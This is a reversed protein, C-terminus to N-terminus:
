FVLDRPSEDHRDFRRVEQHDAVRQQPAHDVARVREALVQEDHQGLAYARVVLVDRVAEAHQALGLAVRVGVRQRTEAVTVPHARHEIIISTSSNL